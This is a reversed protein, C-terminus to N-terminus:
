EWEMLNVPKRVTGEGNAVIVDDGEMSIWPGDLPQILYPYEYNQNTERSEDLTKRSRSKRLNPTFASDLGVFEEPEIGHNHNGNIARLAIFFSLPLYNKEYNLLVFITLIPLPVLASAFLYGDQFTALTGTMTLQFLLLGVICRRFVIPWVKGSSHPPHVMSYMLQYKYVFYGIIFYALGSVLIKTSFVSYIITIIFILIPQPLYLGFNFVPPKYLNRYDRPTKCGAKFFPFRLISGILILKFPFMGIGQLIILDVYFLSLENLSRALQYAIKTTDSLFEWYNSATGFTTFVLFLNVFIYFFNKSVASLEEDGHSIFGQKSSLWVYLFPIAFNLITFLYTPLLGSVTNRAWENRELFEGLGPWFKEITKPNLLTALYGVPVILTISIVGIIITVLYLKFLREKRSLVINDWIIDHPAPALRTILHHVKPDLVAQAAMQASAASDMTIFASPTAPYHKTRARLIEEDLVELQNTYFDIADVEKGLIGCFGTKIRPRVHQFSENNLNVIGNTRTHKYTSRIEGYDDEQFVPSTIVSGEYINLDQDDNSEVFDNRSQENNNHEDIQEDDTNDHFAPQIPSRELEFSERIRSRIPLNNYKNNGFGLPGLYEAWFDELKLLVNKRQKFLHNLQRWERCITISSVKGINLDEIHKKLVQEDRLEPPIGSLRITRDTISNQHGLYKQRIQIVHKTQNVMVKLILITFIYTFGVYMWLFPKFNEPVDSARNSDDDGQDYNGTYHYRIPSIVLISMLACLSLLRIAMKFFTLFVFADLGAHDLLEEEGIKFIVPIWGFLSKQPLSPLNRRRIARSDYLKPWANRLLSFIIFTATGLITAILLQAQAVPATPRRLDIEGSTNNTNM